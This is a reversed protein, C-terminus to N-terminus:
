IRAFALLVALVQYSRGGRKGSAYYMAQGVVLGVPIGILSAEIGTLAALAWYIITGGTAALISWVVVTSICRQSSRAPLEQKLTM